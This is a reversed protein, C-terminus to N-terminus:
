LYLYGDKCQLEGEQELFSLKEAYKRRVWLSGRIKNHLSIKGENKLISLINEWHLVNDEFYGESMCVDCQRCPSSMEGFYNLITQQRCKQDSILYTAMQIMGEWEKNLISNLSKLDNEGLHVSILSIAPSDAGPQYDIIGETKLRQLHQRLMEVSIGCYDSLEDESILGYHDFLHDYRVLLHYALNLYEENANRLSFDKLVEPNFRLKSPSELGSSFYVNGMKTLKKLGDLCLLPHVRNQDSFSKLNFPIAEDMKGQCFKIISSFLKKLLPVSAQYRSNNVITRIIEQESLIFVAESSLGDRGARGAEQYYEEINPPMDIHIVLRVDPKDIGMGFANTAVMIKVKGDMWLDAAEKRENFNMGGHYAASLLGCQSLYRSWELTKRRKRCYIIISGEVQRVLSPIANWKNLDKYVQFSINSREFSNRYINVPDMRCIRKIDELVSYTATATLAMWVATTMSTRIIGLLLYAPRFQYGWQSICHAEDVVMLDIGTEFLFGQFEEKMLREPSCYLLGVDAEKFSKLVDLSQHISLGSHYSWANLRRNQLSMVQDEMLAILPTIVVTKWRAYLTPLQYCISKGGGTPLLAITDKGDLVSQIIDRQMPRFENYGFYYQLSDEINEM